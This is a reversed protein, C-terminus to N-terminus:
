SYLQFDPRPASLRLASPARTAWELGTQSSHSKALSLHESLAVDGDHHTRLEFASVRRQWDTADERDEESRSRGVIRMQARRELIEPQNDALPHLEKAGWNGVWAM